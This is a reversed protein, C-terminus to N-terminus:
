QQKRRQDIVKCVIDKSSIYGYHRSDYSFDSNDGLCYMFFNENNTWEGRHDIRKIVIRDADMPSRYVVVDGVELKDKNFVRTGLILEGDKYTPYMSEGCIQVIPFLYYLICVAVTVVILKIM